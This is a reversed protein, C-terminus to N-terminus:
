DQMWVSIIFDLDLDQLAAIGQPQFKTSESIAPHGYRHNRKNAIKKKKPNKKKIKSM